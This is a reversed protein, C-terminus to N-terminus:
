FEITGSIAEIMQKQAGELVENSPKDEIDLSSIWNYVSPYAMKLETSGKEKYMYLTCPAFAGAEPHTKSVEFIVTLKCISYADFFDYKDYGADSFEDGLKNYGAIVFGLTELSGELEMQLSELEDEVDEGQAEMEGTFSTILEGKPALIKYSTKEFHGNPLAKALTARILKNYEVMHKNSAPIGIVKAMGDISLSSISIDNSGQEMYISMSLPAFLAAKPTIKVLELVLDKKYLTFLHYMKHNTKKFKSEFAVNMDNNGSIVFGADAFAKEISAGTIKGKSNDATYIQIDQAGSAVVGTVLMLGVVISKIMLKM